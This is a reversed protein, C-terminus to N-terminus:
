RAGVPEKASAESTPRRITTATSVGSYLAATFWLTGLLYMVVIGTVTFAFFNDGNRILILGVTGVVWLVPGLVSNIKADVNRGALVALVAIAGTVIWFAGVAPNAVVLGWVKAGENDTFSGASTTALATGGFAVSVAGTVLTLGRYLGRLPHDVPLHSM